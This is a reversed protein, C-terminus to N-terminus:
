GAISDIVSTYIANQKCEKFSLVHFGVILFM